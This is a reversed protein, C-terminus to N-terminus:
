KASSRIDACAVSSPAVTIAKLFGNIEKRRRLVVIEGDVFAALKALVDSRHRHRFTIVWRLFERNVRVYVGLDPRDRGRYRLRRRIIGSLCATTPLDLYIVTDARSLREDLVGLKMGEIVWDTQAVLARHREVWQEPTSEVREGDVLQWYHLDIHVVPVGLRRALENALMTKGSGGCGIVAVRRVLLV